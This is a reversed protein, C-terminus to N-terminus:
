YYDHDQFEEYGLQRFFDAEDTGQIICDCDCGTCAGRKFASCSEAVPCIDM